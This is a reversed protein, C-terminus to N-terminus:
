AEAPAPTSKHQVHGCQACPKQKARELREVYARLDLEHWMWWINLVLVCASTLLNFWYPFEVQVVIGMAWVLCVLFGGLIATRGIRRVLELNAMVEEM